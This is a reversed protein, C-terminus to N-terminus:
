LLFFFKLYELSNKKYYLVIDNEKIGYDKINLAINKAENFFEQYTYQRNTSLCNIFSKKSYISDIYKQISIKVM